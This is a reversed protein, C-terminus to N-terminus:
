MPESMRPVRDDRGMVTDRGNPRRAALKRYYAVLKPDPYFAENLDLVGAVSYHHWAPHGMSTRDHYARPIELRLARVIAYPREPQQLPLARPCAARVSVGHRSRADPTLALSGGIAITVALAAILRKM